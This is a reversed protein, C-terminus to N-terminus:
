NSMILNVIINIDLINIFSDQNLDYFSNEQTDIGIIINSLIIIDIVNVVSDLNLDGLNNFENYAYKKTRAIEWM